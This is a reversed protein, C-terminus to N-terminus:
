HLRKALSIGNNMFKKADFESLQEHTLSISSIPSINLPSGGNSDLYMISYEDKRMEKSIILDYTSHCTSKMLNLINLINFDVHSYNKYNIVAEKIAELFLNASNRDFYSQRVDLLVTKDRRNQALTYKARGYNKISKLISHIYQESGEPINFM